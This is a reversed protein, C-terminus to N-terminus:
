NAPNAPPTTAVEGRLYRRMRKMMEDIGVGREPSGDIAYATKKTACDSLELRNYEVFLVGDVDGDACIATLAETRSDWRGYRAVGKWGSDNLQKRVSASMRLHMSGTGGASVTAIVKFKTGPITSSPTEVVQRGRCGALGILGGAVLLGAAYWTQFPIKHGSVSV